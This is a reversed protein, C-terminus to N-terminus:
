KGYYNKVVIAGFGLFIGIVSIFSVFGGLDAYIQPLFILGFQNTKGTVRWLNAYGDAMVHDKEPLFYSRILKINNFPNNALDQPSLVPIIKWLPNFTQNLLIYKQDNGQLNIFYRTKSLTITQIIKAKSLTTFTNLDKDSNQYPVAYGQTALVNRNNEATILLDRITNVPIVSTVTTLNPQLPVGTIKYVSLMGQDFLHVFNEQVQESGPMLSISSVVFSHIGTQIDVPHAVVEIDISERTTKPFPVLIEKTNKGDTYVERNRIDNGYSTVITGDTVNTEIYAPADTTVNVKIFTNKTNVSNPITCRVLLAENRSNVSPNSCVTTEGESTDPITIKALVNNVQSYDGNLVDKRIVMYKTNLFSFFPALNEQNIYTNIGNALDFTFPTQFLYAIQDHDFLFISSDLGSYEQKGWQQNIGEGVYPVVFIRYDSTDQTNFWQNVKIYEKPIPAGTGVLGSWMPWLYIGSTLILIFTSIVIAPIKIIKQTLSSVGVSIQYLGFGFLPAYSLMIVIGYKEYPNRFAQLISVHKFIKVFLFGLPPNTGLCFLISLTLLMVFFLLKRAKKLALLGVILCVPLLWSIVQFLLSAYIKGYVGPNFFYFGQLLRIITPFTFYQSVGYLNALNDALNGAKGGFINQKFLFLPIFWWANVFIWFILTNIFFGISFLVTKPSRHSINWYLLYFLLISWFVLVNTVLGFTTSFVLSVLAILFSFAIKKKYLGQVFFLLSLPLLAFMAYQAYLGRQWVQTMSYPNLLYFISSILAVNSGFSYSKFVLRVLFYISVVGAVIEFYFLTAQFLFNPIHFVEWGSYIAALPLRPFFDIAFVGTFIPLWLTSSLEWMKHSSYLPLGEEGSALIRGQHFWIILILLPIIFLLFLKKM